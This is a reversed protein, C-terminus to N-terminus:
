PTGVVDTRLRNEAGPAEVDGIRGGARLRPSGTWESGRVSPSRVQLGGCQERCTSHSNGRERLSLPVPPSSRSHSNGRERLSLPHLVEHFLPVPPSSRLHSNGRERLSLPVPPSSKPLPPCPTLVGHSLQCPTLVGHSLQCPTLVGHSLPVPPSCKREMYQHERRRGRLRDM